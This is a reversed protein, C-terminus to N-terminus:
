QLPAIFMAENGLILHFLFYLIPSFLAACFLFIILILGKYSPQQTQNTVTKPM